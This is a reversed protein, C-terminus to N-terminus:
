YNQFFGTILWYFKSFYVIFIKIFLLLRNLQQMWIKEAMESLANPISCPVRVIVFNSLACSNGCQMWDIINSRLIGHFNANSERTRNVWFWPLKDFVKRMFTSHQRSKILIKCLSWFIYFLFVYYFKFFPYNSKGLKNGFFVVTKGLSVRKSVKEFIFQKM